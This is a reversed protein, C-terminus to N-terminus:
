LAITILVTHYHCLFLCMFWHFLIFLGCIVGHVYIWNIVVFPGLIYLPFHYDRWYTTNPFSSLWCLLIFSSGWRIGYVFILEFRILSKFMLGSVMFSRSSFMSLLSVSMLRPLSKKPNSLLLLSLLLLFLCTSSCWVLSSRCLFGDAFDFPWRHFPLFYKCIM